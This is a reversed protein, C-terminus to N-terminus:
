RPLSITKIINILVGDLDLVGDLELFEGSQEDDEKKMIAMEEVHAIDEISDVKIAFCAKGKEFIVFKQSYEQVEKLTDEKHIPLGTLKRFNLVKIVSDEYSMMGDIYKHANPIPTLEKAHIIRQVNDINIAYRNDGVSFIILSTM